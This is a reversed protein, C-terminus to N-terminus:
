RLNARNMEDAFIGNYRKVYFDNTSITCIECRKVDLNYDRSFFRMKNCYPCWLHDSYPRRIFDEPPAYAKCRSFLYVKVSPYKKKIKDRLAKAEPLKDEYCLIDKTKAKVCIGWGM